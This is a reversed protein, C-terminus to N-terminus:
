FIEARRDVSQAPRQAAALTDGPYNRDFTSAFESCQWTM